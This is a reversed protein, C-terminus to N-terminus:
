SLLQRKKSIPPMRTGVQLPTMTQRNTMTFFAVEALDDLIDDQRQVQAHEPAAPDENLLEMALDAIDDPDVGETGTVTELPEAALAPHVPLSLVVQADPHSGADPDGLAGPSGMFAVAALDDM